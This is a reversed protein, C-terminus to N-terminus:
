LRARLARAERLLPLGPDAHRWLQLLREIEARAEDRRGLRALSRALLFLSRPYTWSRWYPQFPIRELRRLAEVVETDLGEEAAVEARLFAPAVGGRLLAHQTELAALRARAQGPRGEKWDVMALYAERLPSGTELHVALERAHVLDGLRALEPAFFATQRPDAALAVEAEAWAAAADGEGALHAARILPLDRRVVDDPAGRGLADLTQLAEARRGQAALAHALWVHYRFPPEPRHSRLESELTAYDGTFSLVWALDSLGFSPSDVQLARRAAALAAPAEGLGLHGAVLAHLVPLTPAMASWDRIWGALDERRGLVALSYSLHDLGYEFTPDLKLVRALYPIAGAQDDRHWALDAALYLAQKDEPFERTVQRFLAFAEDENGELHAAWARMLTREKPPLRDPYRLAQSIAANRDEAAPALEDWGVFALQFWALAFEPDLVVAKRFEELCADTRERHLSPRESCELGVFYHQYAELNPTVAEAVKVASAQIDAERESLAERTRGSLRDIIDPISAKGSAQERVTFLYEDTIPDLARLEVSYLSDFRRITALLLARTRSRRGLERALPEDIRVADERGLIKLIDFMRARSLVALRRSQELSTILMGSLGDLDKEGTENAFDAVAVRIREGSRVHQQWLRAALAGGLMAAAIALALAGRAAWRRLPRDEVARQIRLLADLLAGGSRPRRTPDSALAEGLLAQLAQPIGPTPPPPGQSPKGEEPGDGFPLRGCLAVYLVVAAAYVDARADQPRGQRQEPAMFGRTGAEKAGEEEFFHALGFDLLKVGGDETLFVNGPKLDRHIVGAAHAHELGRAMGVAVRLAERLPLPGRVLREELTEGRLLELILYPGSECTGVDHLTVINPHNLQAVAEAEDLLWRDRPATRPGPRIAKFAILRGLDHDRAEYVIGFGGRGVERLLEFRGVVAGPKLRQEWGESLSVEPAAAMEELLASFAGRPLTERGTPAPREGQGQAEDSM